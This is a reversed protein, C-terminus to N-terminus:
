CRSPPIPCTSLTSRARNRRSTINDAKAHLRGLIGKIEMGEIFTGTNVKADELDIAKVSVEKKLLPLAKVNVTLSKLTLLTDAPSTLVEVGQVKLNLPFSLRIREIGIQMGTAKSAYETAKKVVFNQVPPLYLLVSVLLILVVPILLAIGIRKIWIRM